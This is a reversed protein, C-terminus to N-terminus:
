PSLPVVAAPSAESVCWHLKAYKFPSTLKPPLTNSFITKRVSVVFVLVGLVGRVNVLKVLNGLVLMGWVRVRALVACWCEVYSEGVRKVTGFVQEIRYREGLAWGLEEM